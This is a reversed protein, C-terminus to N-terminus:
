KTWHREEKTVISGDPLQVAQVNFHYTACNMGGGIVLGMVNTCEGCANKTEMITENGWKMTVTLKQVTTPTFCLERRKKKSM